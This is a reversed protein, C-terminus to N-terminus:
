KWVSRFGPERTRDIPPAQVMALYKKERAISDLLRHFDPIDEERILRITVEPSM